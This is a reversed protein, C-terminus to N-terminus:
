GRRAKRVSRAKGRKAKKVKPKKPKQERTGRQAKESGVPPNHKKDSRFTRLTVLRRISEAFSVQEGDGTTHEVTGKSKSSAEANALIDTMSDFSRSKALGEITHKIAKGAGKNTIGIQNPDGDQSGASLYEYKTLHARAIQFANTFRQEKSGKLKNFIAMTCHKLINPVRKYDNATAM